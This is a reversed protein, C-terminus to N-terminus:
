NEVFKCKISIVEAEFACPLYYLPLFTFGIYLFIVLIIPKLFPM